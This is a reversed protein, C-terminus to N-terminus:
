VANNKTTEMSSYSRPKAGLVKHAAANMSPSAGVMGEAKLLLQQHILPSRTLAPSAMTPDTKMMKDTFSEVRQRNGGGNAGGNGLEPESTSIRGYEGGAADSGATPRTVDDNFVIISGNYVATGFLLVILGALQLWSASTWVEGYMSGFSHIMLGFGWITIPRFNDLIAHWIASLYKTVYVAACNYVTVTLVFLVVLTKLLLSNQVMLIADFPDEFHGNDQGPLYYALPYVLVLTLITGWLGECGIVVLPPANNVNMVKEEFVDVTSM